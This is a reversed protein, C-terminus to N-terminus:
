VARGRPFSLPHSVPPAVHGPRAPRPGAWLSAAAGKGAPAAPSLPAPVASRPSPAQGRRESGSARRAGGDTRVRWDRGEHRHLARAGAGGM